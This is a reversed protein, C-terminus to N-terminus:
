FNSLLKKAIELIKVIKRNNGADARFLITCFSTPGFLTTSFNLKQLSIIWFTFNKVLLRVLNKQLLTKLTSPQKALQKKKLGNKM